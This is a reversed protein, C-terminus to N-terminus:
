FEVSLSREKMPGTWETYLYLAGSSPERSITFNSYNGNFQLDKIEQEPGSTPYPFWLKVSRAEPPASVRITFNITGSRDGAFCVGSSLLAIMIMMIGSLRGTKRKM